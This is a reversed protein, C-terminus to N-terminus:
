APTASPAPAAHTADLAGFKDLVGNWDIWGVYCHNLGVILHDRAVGM